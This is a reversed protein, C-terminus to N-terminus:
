EEEEDEDEAEDKSSKGSKGSDKAKDKSKDVGKSDTNDVDSAPEIYTARGVESVYANKWVFPIAIDKSGWDEVREFPAEVKCKLAAEPLLPEKMPLKVPESYSFGEYLVRQLPASISLNEFRMPLKTTVKLKLRVISGARGAVASSVNIACSLVRGVVYVTADSSDYMKLTGSGIKKWKGNESFLATYTGTCYDPYESNAKDLTMTCAFRYKEPDMDAQKLVVTCNFGGGHTRGQLHQLYKNTNVGVAKVLFCMSNDVRNSGNSSSSRRESGNSFTAVSILLLLVFGIRLLVIRMDIEGMQRGLLKMFCLMRFM